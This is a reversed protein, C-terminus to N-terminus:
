MGGIVRESTQLFSCLELIDALETDYLDPNHGERKFSTKEWLPDDGPTSQLLDWVTKYKSMDDKEDRLFDYVLTNRTAKTGARLGQYLTFLKRKSLSFANNLENAKEHLEEFRKLTYPRRTVIEYRSNEHRKPIYTRERVQRPSAFSSEQHLHWDVVSKSFSPAKMKEWRHGNKASKVLEEAMRNLRNIPYTHRAIAVGVGASISNEKFFCNNKIQLLIERTFPIWLSEPMAFAADDGSLFLPRLRIFQGNKNFGQSLGAIKMVTGKFVAVLNKELELSFERLDNFGGHMVVERVKAGMDNLDIVVVSIHEHNCDPTVVLRDIENPFKALGMDLPIRSIVEIPTGQGTESELEGGWKHRKRCIHCIDKNDEPASGDEKREGCHRCGPIDLPQAPASLYDPPERDGAKYRLIKRQLKQWVVTEDDNEYSEVLAWAIEMGDPAIFNAEDKFAPARDKDEFYALVNGGASTIINGGHDNCIRECGKQWRALALSGGVIIRLTNTDFIYDQIGMADLFIYTNRSM